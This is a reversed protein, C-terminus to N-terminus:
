PRLKRHADVIDWFRSMLNPGGFQVLQRALTPSTVNIETLHGDIVDLGALMIGTEALFPAIAAAIQRDRDDLEAPAAIGGIHINARFDGQKPLRRVAGFPKGDLVFVRKDGAAVAPLFKQLVVPEGNASAIKAAIAEKFQLSRVDLRIVGEGGGHFAPKVVVEDFQQAFRVAADVNCGAFTPALFDPFRLTAFKEPTDRVAGPRNIVLVNPEVLDLLYTNAIYTMDVPPDQRMLIVDFENLDVDRQELIQCHAGEIDDVRVRQASALVRGQEYYVSAQEHWWLEHGRAQAELMLAFTTDQAIVISGIPNM